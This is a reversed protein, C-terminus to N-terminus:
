PLRTECSRVSCAGKFPAASSAHIPPTAAPECLVTRAIGGGFHIRTTGPAFQGDPCRSVSLQKYRNGVLDGTSRNRARQNLHPHWRRRLDISECPRTPSLLPKRDLAITCSGQPIRASRYLQGESFPYKRSDLVGGALSEDVVLPISMLCARNVSMEATQEVIVTVNSM